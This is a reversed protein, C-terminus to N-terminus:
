RYLFGSGFCDSVEYGEFGIGKTVCVMGTRHIRRKLCIQNMGGQRFGVGLSFGSVEKLDLM